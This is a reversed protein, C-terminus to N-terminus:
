KTKCKPETEKKERLRKDQLIEIKSKFHEKGVAKWGLIDLFIKLGNL